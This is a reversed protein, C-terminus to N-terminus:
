AVAKAKQRLRLTGVVGLAVVTVINVQATTAPDVTFVDCRMLFDRNLIAIVATSLLYGALPYSVLVFASLSARPSVIELALALALAGLLVVRFNEIARLMEPALVQGCGDTTMLRLAESGAAIPLLLLGSLLIM